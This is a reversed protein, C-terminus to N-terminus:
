TVVEDPKQAIGRNNKNFIHGQPSHVRKPSLKLFIWIPYKKLFRLALVARRKRQM